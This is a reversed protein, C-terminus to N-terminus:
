KSKNKHIFDFVMDLQKNPTMDDLAYMIKKAADYTSGSGEQNTKKNSFYKVASNVAKGSLNAVIGSVIPILYPIIAAHIFGGKMKKNSEKAEKQLRHTPKFYQKRIHQILLNTSGKGSLDIDEADKDNLSFASYGLLKKNELFNKLFVAKAGIKASMNLGHIKKLEELFLNDAENIEDIAQDKTIQSTNLKNNIKEFALDHQKGIADIKNIPEYMSIGTKPDIVNKDIRRQKINTGPGFFHMTNKNEDMGHKENPYQPKGILGSSTLLKILADDIIGDGRQQYINNLRSM